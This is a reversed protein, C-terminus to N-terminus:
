LLLDIYILSYITVEQSGVTRSSKSDPVPGRDAVLAETQINPIDKTERIAPKSKSINNFEGESDHCPTSILRKKKETRTINAELADTCTENGNKYKQGQHKEQTLYSDQYTFPEFHLRFM